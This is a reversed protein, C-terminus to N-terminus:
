SMQTYLADRLQEWAPQQKRDFAAGNENGAAQTARSGRRANQEVGGGLSVEFFGRSLAGAGKLQVSTISKIPVRKESKNGIGTHTIILWAGDLTMSCRQGEATITVCARYRPLSRVDPSRWRECPCLACDSGARDHEHIARPHGCVCTSIM